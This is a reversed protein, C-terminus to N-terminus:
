IYSKKRSINRFHFCTVIWMHLCQDIPWSILMSVGCLTAIDMRSSFYADMSRNVAKVSTVSVQFPSFFTGLPARVRSRACARHKKRAVVEKEKKRGHKQGFLQRTTPYTLGANLRDGKKQAWHRWQELEGKFGDVFRRGV